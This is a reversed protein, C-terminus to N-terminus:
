NKIILLFWVSILSCSVVLMWCAPWSPQSSTSISNDWESRSWLTSIDPYRIALTVVTGRQLRQNDHHHHHSHESTQATQQGTTEGSVQTSWDVSLVRARAPLPCEDRERERHHSLTEVRWLYGPLWCVGLYHHDDSRIVGSVEERGGLALGAESKCLLILWQTEGRRLPPYYRMIPVKIAVLLPFNLVVSIWGTLHLLFM